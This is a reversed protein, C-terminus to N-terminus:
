SIRAQPTVFPGLFFLFSFLAALYGYEEFFYEYTGKGQGFVFQPERYGIETKFEKLEHEGASLGEDMGYSRISISYSILVGLIAFAITM